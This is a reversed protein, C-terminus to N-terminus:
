QRCLARWELLRRGSALSINNRQPGDLTLSKEVAYAWWNSLVADGKQMTKSVRSAIRVPTGHDGCRPLANILSSFSPIVPRRL